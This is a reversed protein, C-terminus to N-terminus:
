TEKQFPKYKPAKATLKLLTVETFGGNKTPGLLESWKYHDDRPGGQISLLNPQTGEWSAQPLHLNLNPNGVLFTIIRTTVTVPFPSLGFLLTTKTTTIKQMSASSKWVGKLAQWSERPWLPLGPQANARAFLMSGNFLTFRDVILEWNRPLGFM